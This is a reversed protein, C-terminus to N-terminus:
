IPVLESDISLIIPSKQHEFNVFFPSKNINKTVQLVLTEKIKKCALHKLERLIDTEQLFTRNETHKRFRSNINCYIVAAEEREGKLKIGLVSVFRM